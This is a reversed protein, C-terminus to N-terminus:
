QSICQNNRLFLMEKFVANMYTSLDNDGELSDKNNQEQKQAREENKQKELEDAKKLLEILVINENETIKDIDVRKFIVKNNLRQYTYFATASTGNQL